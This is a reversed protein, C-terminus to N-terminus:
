SFIAALSYTAGSSQLLQCTLNNVLRLRHKISCWTVPMCTARSVSTLSGTILVTMMLLSGDILLDWDALLFLAEGIQKVGM